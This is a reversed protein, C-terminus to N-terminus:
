VTPGLEGVPELDENFFNRVFQLMITTIRFTEAGNSGQPGSIIEQVHQDSPRKAPPDSRGRHLSARRRAARRKEAAEAATVLLKNPMVAVWKPVEDFMCLVTDSAARVYSRPDHVYASLVAVNGSKIIHYMWDLHQWYRTMRLHQEEESLDTLKQVAYRVAGIM